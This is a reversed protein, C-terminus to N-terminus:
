SNTDPLETATPIAPSGGLEALVQVGDKGPMVLDLLVLDAAERAGTEAALVGIAQYGEAALLILEMERTELDDEVMVLKKRDPVNAAAETMLSRARNM